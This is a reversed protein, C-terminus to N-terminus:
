HRFEHGCRRLACWLKNGAGRRDPLSGVPQRLARTPACNVGLPYGPKPIVVPHTQKLNPPGTRARHEYIHFGVGLGGRIEHTSNQGVGAPHHM